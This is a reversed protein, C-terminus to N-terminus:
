PTFRPAAETPAPLAFETILQAQARLVQFAALVEEYHEPLIPLDLLAAAQDLYEAIAQPPQTM